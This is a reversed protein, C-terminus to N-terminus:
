IKIWLFIRVTKIPQSWHALRKQAFWSHIHIKGGFFVLPCFMKHSDLAMKDLISSIGWTGETGVWAVTEDPNSGLTLKPFFSFTQLKKKYFFNETAVTIWHLQCPLLFSMLSRSCRIIWGWHFGWRPSWQQNVLRLTFLCTSGLLPARFTYVHTRQHM